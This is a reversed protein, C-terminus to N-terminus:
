ECYCGGNCLCVTAFRNLRQVEDRVMHPCAEATFATPITRTGFVGHIEQGHPGVYEAEWGRAKVRHLIIMNEM